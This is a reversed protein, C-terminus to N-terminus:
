SFIVEGNWQGKQWGTIEKNSKNDEFIAVYTTFIIMIIYYNSIIQIYNNVYCKLDRRSKMIMQKDTSIADKISIHVSCFILNSYEYIM